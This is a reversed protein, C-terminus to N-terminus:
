ELVTGIHGPEREIAIRFKSGPAGQTGKGIVMRQILFEFFEMLFHRGTYSTVEKALSNVASQLNDETAQGFTAPKSRNELLDYITLDISIKEGLKTATGTVIYDYSLGRGFAKVKKLSPPWSGAYNLSKATTSRSQFDQKYTHAAKELAKDMTRSFNEGQLSQTKLPLFLTNAQDDAAYSLSTLALLSIFLLSSLYTKLPLLRHDM